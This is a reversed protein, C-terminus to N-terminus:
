YVEYYEKLKNSRSPNKLHRLAKSEIQRIRERTVNYDLAITELTRIGKGDLGFRKIIIDKERPKLDDLLSLIISQLSKEIVFSSPDTIRTDEILEGLVTGGEAGVPTDLSVNAMFTNQVKIAELVKELPLELELAIWDYDVVGFSSYSKREFRRVKKILEGMHVPVRITNSNDMIGRTIGQRIWHTAYTSFEFEMNLDFKKAATMLGIMGNQFMDDESFAPSASSKYRSVEKAVLGKNAYVLMELAEESTAEGTQYDLIYDKNDKFDPVEFLTSGREIFDKSNIIKDLDTEFEEDLFSLPDDNKKDQDIPHNTPQRSQSQSIIENNESNVYTGTPKNTEKLLVNLTPEASRNPNGGELNNNLRPTLNTMTLTYEKGDKYFHSVFEKNIPKIPQVEIQSSSHTNKNIMEDPTCQTPEIVIEDLRKKILPVALTQPEEPLPKTQDRISQKNSQDFVVPIHSDKDPISASKGTSYFDLTSVIQEEAQTLLKDELLSEASKNEQKMVIADSVIKINVEPLKNEEFKTEQNHIDLDLTDQEQDSARSDVNKPFRFIKDKIIEKLKNFYDM